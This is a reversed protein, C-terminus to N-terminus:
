ATEGREARGTSGDWVDAPVHVDGSMLLRATRLIGVREVAGDAGIRLDVTLAGGAHEIDLQRREGEGADGIEAAITGPMSLATAVTVAALVGLSEHVVRPIFSRTCLAGSARPPSLLTTKPYPAETVDGLGMLEGARLRLEEVRRRLGTDAMLDAPSEAGDAGLDPARVMVLPQGNDMLTAEVARGDELPITDRVRGTPLLSSAVSGATDRFMLSIPCGAGPVGDITTDGDYQARHVGDADAPTRVTAEAVLGTGLTRVVATTHDGTPARMGSELAFPLVAALMNGCNVGHQVAHAGPRLQVFDFDLDVGAESSPGVIGVKSTLPHGGGVGDIALPSSSGIVVRLVDDRLGPDAPLDEARFFPGRSTGGRFLMAPIATQRAM